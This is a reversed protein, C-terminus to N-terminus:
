VKKRQAGRPEVVKADAWSPHVTAKTLGALTDGALGWFFGYWAGYRGNRLRSAVDGSCALM